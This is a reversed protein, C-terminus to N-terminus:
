GGGPIILTQGAYIVYPSELKNAAAITPWAVGYQLSILYLTEGAKVTHTFQPAPGAAKVPIKLVQGAFIQNPNVIGNAEAIQVWSIGYALGIRFLTDGRRVTYTTETLPSPTPEAVPTTASSLQLVQGVKIDNPNTLKNIQALTVWSMGYKLGIRYLNEGAAVTHTTPTQAPAAVATEAPEGPKTGTEATPQEAPPSETKTDTSATAEAGTATEATAPPEPTPTAEAPLEVRPTDAPEQPATDTTEPAAPEAQAPPPYAGTQGTQEDAAPPATPPAATEGSGASPADVVVETGRDTAGDDGGTFPRECATVALVLVLFFAFLALLRRQRNM